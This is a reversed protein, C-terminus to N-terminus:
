GYAEEAHSDLWRELDSLLANEGLPTMLVHSGAQPRTLAVKTVWANDKTLGGVGVDLRGDELMRVLHEEGGVTWTVTAGLTEAYAEVLDVEPGAPRGDRVVVLGEAPSAGARLETSSRVRDLTGEPDAPISVGCGTLVLAVVPLALALQSVRSSVAGDDRVGAGPSPRLAPSASSLPVTGVCGPPRRGM